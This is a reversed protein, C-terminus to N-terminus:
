APAAAVRDCLSVRNNCCNYYKGPSRVRSKWCEPKCGPRDHKSTCHELDSPSRDGESSWVKCESSPHYHTLTILPSRREQISSSM